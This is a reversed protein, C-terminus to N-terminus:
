ENEYYLVCLSCEGLYLRNRQYVKILPITLKKHLVTSSNSYEIEETSAPSVKWAHAISHSPDCDNFSSQLILAVVAEWKLNPQLAYHVYSSQLFNTYLVPLVTITWYAGFGSAIISSINLDPCVIYMGRYRLVVSSALVEYCDSPEWHFVLLWIWLQADCFCNYTENKNCTNVVSFFVNHDNGGSLLLSLREPTALMGKPLFDRVVCRSGLAVRFCPSFM